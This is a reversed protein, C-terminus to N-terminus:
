AFTLIRCNNKSLVYALRNDVDVHRILKNLQRYVRQIYLLDFCVSYRRKYRAPGLLYNQVNYEDTSGSSQLSRRSLPLRQDRLRCNQRCRVDAYGPAVTISIDDQAHGVLLYILLLVCPTLLKM